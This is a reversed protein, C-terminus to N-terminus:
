KNALDDVMELKYKEGLATLFTRADAVSLSFQRFVQGERIIARMKKEIDKLTAEELPTPFEM